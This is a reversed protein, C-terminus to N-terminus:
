RSAATYRNSAYGDSRYLPSTDFAFESEGAISRLVFSSRSSSASGSMASNSRAIRCKVSTGFDLISSFSFFSLALNALHILFGILFNAGIEFADM